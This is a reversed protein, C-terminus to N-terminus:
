GAPAVYALEMRRRPPDTSVIKVDIEAGIDFKENNKYNRPLKSVHLLGTVGPSMEVFLGYPQLNVIQGKTVLGAPYKDFVDSWAGTTLSRQMKQIGLRATSLDTLREFQDGEVVATTLKAAKARHTELYAVVDRANYLVTDADYQRAIDGIREAINKASLDNDFWTDEAIAGWYYANGVLELHVFGAPALRLLDDEGIKETRFDETVICKAKALYEVERRIVLPELGYSTLEKILTRLPHYGKLGTPGAEPFKTDLWRLLMLRTFYSPRADKIDADCLNKLHGRDSDYFRFSKRLLITLVVSLPLTYDGQRQRINVIHDESIHGSSCFEQFLEFALRLNRGSLGDLMRRIQYDYEFISRVISTLYYAQDAAAYEVKFGNPLDFKLSKPASKALQNLALQIRTVLVHHFPPSEIRFVLDKQATDLPPRDRFNDYTEDRLPLVVLARFEKQVWQAAEFMLLQESLTRKDCNDLVLVVLKNRENGLHRCHCIAKTHLNTDAEKLVKYLEDNYKSPDGELLKGLGKKFRNAEVSYISQLTTFDDFDLDSYATRLGTVIERRLFDYVENPSIPAPNMNIHVWVTGERVDKSLSVEQLRDIFTTKGAGAGGVILLVQHELQRQKGFANNIENPAGTDILQAEAQSRPSSARMVKDIPEVYRDRRVSPVYGEKAVYARDERRVPNFVHAFDASITAGFSNLGVVDDQISAGGVLRRPKWYRTPKILASLRTFEANLADWGMFTQLDSFKESYPDIDAYSLSHVPTGQDFHGAWLEDGNTAIVRTLPNLGSPFMSNMEAAYLRAERFAADLNDGREKAEVVLLPLSAKVVLYDPFYSKQAKGKDIVHKRVNQKTVINESPFQFGYPKEAVLLPFIFKQEVDSENMLESLSPKKYSMFRDGEVYAIEATSPSAIIGRTTATKPVPLRDAQRAEWSAQTHSYRDILARCMGAEKM